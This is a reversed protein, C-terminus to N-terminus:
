TYWRLSFYNRDAFPHPSSDNRDRLCTRGPHITQVHDEVAPFMELLSHRTAHSNTTIWDTRRMALPMLIREALYGSPRMTQRSHVWVLDHVTMVKATQSRVFGPMRHGPSWFLDLKSRNVLHPLVLEGWAQRALRSTFKGEHREINARDWRGYQIPGPSFFVWEHDLEVLRSLMELSYRALGTFPGSLLRADVGIKM